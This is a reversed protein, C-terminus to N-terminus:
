KWREIIQDLTVPKWNYFGPWCNYFNCTVGKLNRVKPSIEYENVGERILDDYLQRYSKLALRLEEIMEHEYTNHIHGYLHYANPDRNRSYFPMCYHCMTVKRGKDDITKIDKIDQFMNKVRQPYEKLDHNGQILVKNGKLDALLEVWDDAKRWCFDGLIYITDAGTVVSNWNKVLADQMEFTTKWPRNDLRLVNEHGFHLDATYFIKKRIKDSM